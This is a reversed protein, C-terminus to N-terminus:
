DGQIPDSCSFSIGDTFLGSFLVGAIFTAPGFVSLALSGGCDSRAMRVREEHIFHYDKQDARLTANVAGGGLAGLGLWITAFVYWGIAIATKNSM